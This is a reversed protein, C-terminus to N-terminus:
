ILLDKLELTVYEEFISCNKFLDLNKFEEYFNKINRESSLITYKIVKCIYIKSEDEKNILINIDKIDCLENIILLYLLYGIIEFMFKNQNCMNNINALIQLIEHHFTRMKNLSLKFSISEIIYKIYSKFCIVKEYNSLLYECINIYSKIIEELDIKKLSKLIPWNYQNEINENINSKLDIEKNKLFNFYNEM